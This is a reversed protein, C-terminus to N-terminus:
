EKEAENLAETIYPKLDIEIVADARASVVGAGSSVNSCGVLTEAFGIDGLIGLMGDSATWDYLFWDYLSKSISSVTLTLKGDYQSMDAFNDFWIFHIDNLRVHLQYSKGSFRRDTFVSFGYADSGFFSELASIHESFVPEADYDLLGGWIDVGEPARCETTLEYYDDHGPTDRVTIVADVNIRAGVETIPADPDFGDHWVNASSTIDLSTLRVDPAAPVTVRAEARGYRRSDAGVYVEDGPAPVYADIDVPHGNVSVSVSCDTVSIDAQPDSYLWTHTLEVEVGQGAVIMSNLCLVEADPNGPNFDTYCGALSAALASLTIYRKLVAM